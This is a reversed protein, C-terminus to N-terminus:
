AKWKLKLRITCYSYFQLEVMVNRKANPFTHFQIHKLRKVNNRVHVWITVSRLYFVFLHSQPILLRGISFCFTQLDIFSKVRFVFFFGRIIQEKFVVMWIHVTLPSLQFIFWTRAPKKPHKGQFIHGKLRNGTSFEWVALQWGKVLFAFFFFFISVMNGAAVYFAYSRKVKRRNWM